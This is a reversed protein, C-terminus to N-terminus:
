VLHRFDVRGALALERGCASNNRSLNFCYDTWEPYILRAADEQNRNDYHFEGKYTLVHAWRRPTLLQGLGCASPWDV